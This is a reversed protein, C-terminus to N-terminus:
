AIGEGLNCKENVSKLRRCGLFCSEKGPESLNRNNKGHCRNEKVFTRVIYSLGFTGEIKRLTLFVDVPCFRASTLYRCFKRELIDECILSHWYTWAEEVPGYGALIGVLWAREM